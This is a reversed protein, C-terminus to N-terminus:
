PVVAMRLSSVALDLDPIGPLGQLVRTYLYYLGIAVLVFTIFNRKTFPSGLKGVMIWALYLGAAAFLVGWIQDVFDSPPATFVQAGEQGIASFNIFLSAIFLLVTGLIVLQVIKSSSPARLAM